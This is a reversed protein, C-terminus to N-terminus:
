YFEKNGKFYKTQEGGRAEDGSGSEEDDAMIARYKQIAPSNETDIHRWCFEGLLGFFQSRLRTNMCDPTWRSEVQVWYETDFVSHFENEEDGDNSNEKCMAPLVGESSHKLSWCWYLIRRTFADRSYTSTFGARKLEDLLHSALDYAWDKIQITDTENCVTVDQIWCEWAHGELITHIDALPTKKSQSEM